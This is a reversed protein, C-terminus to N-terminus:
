TTGYYSPTSDGSEIDLRRRQRLRPSALRPGDEEAWRRKSDNSIRNGLEFPDHEIFRTGRTSRELENFAKGRISEYAGEWERLGVKTEYLFSYLTSRRSKDLELCM